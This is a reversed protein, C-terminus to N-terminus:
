DAMSLYLSENTVLGGLLADMHNDLTNHTEYYNLGLLVEKLIDVYSVIRMVAKVFTGLLYPDIWGAIRKIDKNQCWDLMMLCLEQDLKVSLYEALENAYDLTAQLAPSPKPLEFACHPNARTGRLFLCLFAFIEAQSLDKLYGDAIVTGIILPHGDAFSACAKGRPSLAWGSPEELSPKVFGEQQLWALNESWQSQLMSASATIQSEITTTAHIYKRHGEFEEQSICSRKIIDKMQGKVKKAQKPNLGITMGGGLSGGHATGGLKANLVEYERVLSHVERTLTARSQGEGVTLDNELVTRQRRLEDCKLTTDLVEPGHGRALHRLVFPKDVILQSTAAPMAGQLMRSMDSMPVKNKLGAVSLTPAYFVFGQVDMGRRGARGAMQWFEDTRFWRHSEGEDLDNPKDVQTFVVSRAPMNVGVALTETAFVLKVLRDQFCLEVFERLVPLMGAHHYAVGSDLLQMIDTYAELEGLEPMFRQLHKQHMQKRRKEISRAGKNREDDELKWLLMAEEGDTDDPKKKPAKHLLNLGGIAHAGEVCKKRSMCFVVGPLKDMENLTRALKM